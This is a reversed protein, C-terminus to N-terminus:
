NVKKRKFLGIISGLGYTFHIMFYLPFSFLLLFNKTKIIEGIINITLFTFYAGYFVIMPLFGFITPIGTLLILLFLTTFIVALTFLFPIFHYLSFIKPTMIKSTYMVWLGNGYKQKLMGKLTSRVYYDNYINDYMAIKYGNVRARYCFENDESRILNEDFYGIKDFVERKYCGNALTKVYQKKNTKNRFSAVGSGFSSSDVQYLLNSWVSKNECVANTTGGVIDEGDNIGVVNNSIFNKPLISHADVRIILEGTSNKIALNLGPAQRIKENIYIKISNYESDYKNKFNEIIEMTRDKSPAVSFVVEIDKKSYDQEIISEILNPLHKEEDKAIVCLSVIM